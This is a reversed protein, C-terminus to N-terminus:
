AECGRGGQEAVSSSSGGLDSPNAPDNPVSLPSQTAPCALPHPPSQSAFRGEWAVIVPRVRLRRAEGAVFDRAAEAAARFPESAEQAALAEAFAGLWRGLHDQLFTRAARSTTRGEERLGHFRAHALKLLLAAYFELEVSIHDARTRRRQSLEFGFARFFGQLDALIPAPSVAERPQFAAEHPSCLPVGFFLRSYETYLAHAEAGSWVKRLRTTPGKLTRPLAPSRGLCKLAGMLETRPGAEPPPQFCQALCQAFRARALLAAVSREARGLVPEGLDGPPSEARGGRVGARTNKKTM